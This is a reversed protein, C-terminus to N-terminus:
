RIRAPERGSGAGAAILVASIAMMLVGILSYAALGEAASLGHFLALYLSGFTAAPFSFIVAGTVM